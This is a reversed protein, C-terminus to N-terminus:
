LTAVLDDYQVASHLINGPLKMIEQLAAGSPAYPDHPNTRYKRRIREVMLALLGVDSLDELSQERGNQRLGASAIATCAHYAEFEERLAVMNSSRQSRMTWIPNDQALSVHVLEHVTITSSARAEESTMKYVLTPRCKVLAVGKSPASAFNGSLVSHSLVHASTSTMAVSEDPFHVSSTPARDVSSEILSRYASAAGRIGGSWKTFIRLTAQIQKSDQVQFDPPTIVTEGPYLAYIPLRDSGRYEQPVKVYGDHVNSVVASELVATLRPLSTGLVWNTQPDQLTGIATEISKDIYAHREHQDLSTFYM